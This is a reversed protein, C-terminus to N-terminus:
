TRRVFLELHQALPSKPAVKYPHSDEESYYGEPNLVMPKWSKYILDDVSTTYVVRQMVGSNEDIVGFEQQVFPYNYEEPGVEDAFYPRHWRGLYLYRQPGITVDAPGTPHERKGEDIGM